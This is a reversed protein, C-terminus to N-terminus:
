NSGGELGYEQALHTLAKDLRNWDSDVQEGLPYKELFKRLEDQKSRFRRLEATFPEEDEYREELEDANEELSEFSRAMNERTTQDFIEHKNLENKVSEALKRSDEELENMLENMQQDSLRRPPPAGVTLTTRFARALRDMNSKHERWEEGAGATNPNRTMVGDIETTMRFLTILDQNLTHTSEFEEELREFANEYDKMYQRVDVTIGSQLTISKVSEFDDDFEDASEAAEEIMKEVEKDTYRVGEEALVADLFAFSFLSVGLILLVIRMSM